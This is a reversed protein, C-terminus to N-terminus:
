VNAVKKLLTAQQNKDYTKMTITAFAWVTAPIWGIGTFQLIFCIVGQVGAGVAFMALGPCFLALACAGGALKDNEDKMADAFAIAGLIAISRASVWTWGVDNGPYHLAHRM